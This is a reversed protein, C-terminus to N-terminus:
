TTCGNGGGGLRLGTVGLFTELGDVYLFVIELFIRLVLFFFFFLAFKVLFLIFSLFFLIDLRRLLLPM